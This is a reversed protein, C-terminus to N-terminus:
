LPCVEDDLEGEGRKRKRYTQREVLEELLIELKMSRFSVYLPCVEDDLEGEDRKRKRYTQREVLEELVIELKM